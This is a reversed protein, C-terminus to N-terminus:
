LFELSDQSIGPVGRPAAAGLKPVAPRCVHFSQACAQISVFAPCTQTPKELQLATRVQLYIDVNRFLMRGGDDARFTSATHEESVNVYRGGFVFCLTLWEVV